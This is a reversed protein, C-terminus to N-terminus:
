AAQKKQALDHDEANNFLDAVGQKLHSICDKIRADYKDKLNAEKRKLDSIEIKMSATERRATDLEARCKLLEIELNSTKQESAAIESRHASREDSLKSSVYELHNQIADVMGFSFKGAEIQQLAEEISMSNKMQMGRIKLHRM